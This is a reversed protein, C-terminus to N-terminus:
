WWRGRRGEGGGGGGGSDEGNRGGLGQGTRGSDQPEMIIPRFFDRMAQNGILIRAYDLLGADRNEALETGLEDWLHMLRRPYDGAVSARWGILSAILGGTAFAGMVMLPSAGYKAVVFVFLGLGFTWVLVLLLLLGLLWLVPRAMMHDVVNMSLSRLLHFAPIALDLIGEGIKWFSIQMRTIIGNIYGKMDATHLQRKHNCRTCGERVVTCVLECTGPEPTKVRGFLGVESRACTEMCEDYATACNAHGYTTDSKKNNQQIPCSSDRAELVNMLIAAEYTPPAGDHSDVSLAAALWTDDKAVHGVFRSIVAQSRISFGMKPTTTITAVASKVAKSKAFDAPNRVAVPSGWAGALALTSAVLLMTTITTKLMKGFM